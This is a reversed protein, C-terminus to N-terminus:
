VEAIGQLHRPDGRRVALGRDTALRENVKLILPLLSLLFLEKREKVSTLQSLDHPLETLYVRPVNSKGSRIAELTYGLREFRLRLSASTFARLESSLTLSPGTYAPPPGKFFPLSFLGTQTGVTGIAIVAFVLAYLHNPALGRYASHHGSIKKWM